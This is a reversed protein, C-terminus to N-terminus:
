LDKPSNEYADSRLYLSWVSRLLNVLNVASKKLKNSYTIILLLRERSTVNHWMTRGLEKLYSAVNGDSVPVGKHGKFLSGGRTRVM